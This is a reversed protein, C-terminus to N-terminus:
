CIQEFIWTDDDQCFIKPLLFRIHINFPRRCHFSLIPCGEFSISLSTKVKEIFICYLASNHRTQLIYNSVVNLQTSMKIHLSFSLHSKDTIVHHTSLRTDKSFTSMANGVTSFIVTINHFENHIALALIAVPSHFAKSQLLFTSCFIHITNMWMNNPM